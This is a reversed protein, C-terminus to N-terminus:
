EEEGIAEFRVVAGRVHPPLLTGYFPCFTGTVIIEDSKKEDIIGIIEPRSLATFIVKDSKYSLMVDDGALLGYDYPEMPVSTDCVPCDIVVSWQEVKEIEGNPLLMEEQGDFTWKGDELPFAALPTECSPCPWQQAAQQRMMMEQMHQEQPSLQQVDILNVESEDIEWDVSQLLLRMRIRAQAATPNNHQQILQLSKEGTRVYTLGLGGPEWMGNMRLRELIQKIEIEPTTQEEM